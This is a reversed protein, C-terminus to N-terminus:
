TNYSAYALHGLRCDGGAEQCKEGMGKTTARDQPEHAPVLSVPLRGPAGAKCSHKVSRAAEPASAEDGSGSFTISFLCTTGM